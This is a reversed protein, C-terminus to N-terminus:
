AFDARHDEAWKRLTLGKRGTVEEVGPKIEDPITSTDSWYDLLMKIVPAPMFREMGQAFAEPSIEDYRLSRGIAAGIAQLQEVRTLAEPGSLAYVKDAHRDDVLAVAAVTAIDGEHIPAQRSLPYPGQVAGTRRISHAWSLLNSSFTGPRLITVPVGTARVQAEIELHHLASISNKDRAHEQSAALSSLVVFRGVGQDKAQRVFRTVGSQAPFVFASSVGRFASAPLDGLTFDGLVIEVEIPLGQGERSVARVQHGAELLRLILSRGILGTAGTVLVIM